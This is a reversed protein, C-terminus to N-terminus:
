VFNFKEKRQANLKKKKEISNTLSRVTHLFYVRSNLLKLLYLLYRTM